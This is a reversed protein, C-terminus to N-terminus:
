IDQEAVLSSPASTPPLLTRMITPLAHVSTPLALV